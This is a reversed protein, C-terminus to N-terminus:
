YNRNDILQSGFNEKNQQISSARYFAVQYRSTVQYKM